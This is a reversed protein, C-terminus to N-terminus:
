AFRVRFRIAGALRWFVATPPILASTVIMEAVHSLSRSTGRLRKRCLLATLITWAAASPVVIATSGAGAGAACSALAAVTAYHDWAPTARIKQRYLQPHTKFLLADFSLNKLQWVSAGWAAPRVPRVVLAHQTCAIAVHMKILRFHFDQQWGAHFREDFGGLKELVSKRCFCNAIAFEAQEHRRAERQYDTLAGTPPMEVLGSVADVNDTFAALGHRLWSPSPVTDDETFAVISARASRWGLNRVAAPGPAGKNPLYKLDPGRAGASARWVAVLQRTNHRPEDDVVIVEVRRGDLNQRMIADLCRDLLDVRGCTPVVVSVEPGAQDPTEQTAHM